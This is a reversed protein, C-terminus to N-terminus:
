PQPNPFETVINNLYLSSGLANHVNWYSMEKNPSQVVNDRKWPFIKNKNDPLMSKHTSFECFVRINIKFYSPDTLWDRM